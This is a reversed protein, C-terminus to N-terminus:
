YKMASHSLRERERGIERKRERAKEEKYVIASKSYVEPVQM